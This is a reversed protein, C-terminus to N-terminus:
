YHPNQSKAIVAAYVKAAGASKLARAAENLTAGTTTVDDVLCLASDTLDFRRPVKFVNRVNRRRGAATLGVQPRAFRAAKLWPLVPKNTAASITSALVAAHDTGRLIRVLWYPPIPVFGDISEFWDTEYLLRQVLRKTLSEALYHESGFKFRVILAQLLGEYPGVRVLAEIPSASKACNPCKGSRTLKVFPAVTAGCRRCYDRSDLIAMQQSCRSCWYAQAAIGEGCGPCVRPYLPELSRSVCGHIFRIAQAAWLRM